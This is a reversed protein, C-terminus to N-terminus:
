PVTRESIYAGTLEFDVPEHWDLPRAHYDTKNWYLIVVRGGRDQADWLDAIEPGPQYSLILDADVNYTNFVDHVYGTGPWVDGNALYLGSVVYCHGSTENSQDFCGAITFFVVIAILIRM